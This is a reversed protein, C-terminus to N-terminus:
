QVHRRIERKLRHIRRRTRRVDASDGRALAADREVKLARIEQKIRTKDIGIVEHHEHAEVGLAQCLAPLLHEKHMTSFGAVAESPLGAAIERLQGVNMAHLQEYTYM